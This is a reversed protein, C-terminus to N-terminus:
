LSRTRPVYIGEWDLGTFSSPLHSDNVITVTARDSRGRVPVSFTGSRVVVKDGVSDADAGLLASFEPQYEKAGKSPRVVVRFYASNVYHLFLRLVRLPSTELAKQVGGGADVRPYLRSLTFESDYLQGIVVSTATHDGEVTITLGTYSVIAVPVGFTDTGAGWVVRTNADANYPLTFTTRDLSSNYSPSSASGKVRRDLRIMWDEGPEALFANCPIKEMTLDAGRRLVMHFDSDFFAGGVPQVDDGLEWRHWAVQLKEGKAQYYQHVLIRGVSSPSIAMVMNLAASGTLQDVDSPIYGPVHDSISASLKTAASNDEIYLERIDTYRTDDGEVGVPSAFLLSHPTAVPPADVNTPENVVMTLKVSKQTLLDGASLRHIAVDSVLYLDEDFTVAHEFLAVVDDTGAVDIPDDDVVTTMTTRWFDFPKGPRSLVVSENCLFGLRGRYFFVDKMKAGVFSPPPGDANDKGVKRPEWTAEKFTFSGDAERVLVHPMLAPNFAKLTGPSVCERWVVGDNDNSNDPKSLKVWYNDHGDTPTGVVECVFGIPGHNPLDSFDQISDKITIISEATNAGRDSESRITFPTGDKRKIWIVNAYRVMEWDAPALNDVLRTTVTSDGYAADDYGSNSDATWGNVTGSTVDGWMLAKTINIPTVFKELRRVIANDNSVGTTTIIEAVKSNNIFIRYQRSFNAARTFILAEQGRATEASGSDMAAAITKNVVFTYDASTAAAFVDEGAAGGTALYGTGNPYAVTKENGALDWVRVVGNRIAVHYREVADRKIAHYYSSSPLPTTLKKIHFSPPRKQLGQAPTSFCNIQEELQSALRVNPPQRSVGNILNPLSGSVPAM